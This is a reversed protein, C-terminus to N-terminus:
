MKHIVENIRDLPVGFDKEYEKTNRHIYVPIGYPQVLDYIYDLEELGTADNDPYLHLEIYFIKLKTFIYRLLGTYGSGGIAMYIQEPDKRLNYYVSLIDFEGEAINIKIRNSSNLNYRGPIIYFKELNDYKGFINYRIYRKDINQHVKGEAVLRRMNIYANDASIFGVFYDNLQQLIDQDRTYERINNNGLLDGLNLVIKKSLAEQYDISTGLRDNIYKLKLESMRGQSIYTNNIRYIDRGMYNRNVPNSYARKNHASLYASADSSFIGWRNLIEPSMNVHMKCKHCYAWSIEDDTQPIAIYMHAHTPDKSDGCEFCRCLVFRGGSASSASPISDILFQRYSNSDLWKVEM